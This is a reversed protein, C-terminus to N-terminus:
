QAHDPPAQCVKGRARIIRLRQLSLHVLRLLLEQRLPYERFLLYFASILSATFRARAVTM